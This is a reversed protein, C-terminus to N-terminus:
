MLREGSTCSDEDEDEREKLRGIVRGWLARGPEDCVPGWWLFSRLAARAEEFRVCGADSNSRVRDGYVLELMRGLNEEFWPQLDSRIAAFCGFWLIWVHLDAHAFRSTQGRVAAAQAEPEILSHYLQSTQAVTHMRKALQHKVGSVWALPFLVMDSYVMAALRVLEELGETYDGPVGHEGDRTSSESTSDLCQGPCFSLLRHQAENRGEVLTKTLSTSRRSPFQHHYRDVLHTLYCMQYLIDYLESSVGQIAFGQSFQGCEPASKTLARHHCRTSQLLPFRPAKGLATSIAIDDRFMAMNLVYILLQYGGATLSM